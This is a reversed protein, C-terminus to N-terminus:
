RRWACRTWWARTAPATPTARRTVAPVAPQAVARTRTRRAGCPALTPAPARAAVVTVTTQVCPTPGLAPRVLATGTQTHKHPLCATLGSHSTEVCSQTCADGPKGRPGFLLTPFSPAWTLLARPRTPSSRTSPHLTLMMLRNPSSPQPVFHPPAPTLPTSSYAQMTM